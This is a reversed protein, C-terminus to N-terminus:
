RARAVCHWGLGALTRYCGIDEFGADRFLTHVTAPDLRGKVGSFMRWTVMSTLFYGTDKPRRLLEGRHPLARMAAQALSTERAPEMLVLTGGPRMVRRLERLVASRDHVLYLFSHGTILDFHADPLDLRAADGIQFRVHAMSPGLAALRKKARGIMRASLDVGLVEVSPGLREALAFTSVGPGCGVDLLRTPEHSVHELMRRSAELWHQQQTLFDYGHAGVDFLWPGFLRKTLAQRM